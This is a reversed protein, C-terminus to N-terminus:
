TSSIILWVTSFSIREVSSIAKGKRAVSNTGSTDGSVFLQYPEKPVKWARFTSSALKVDEVIDGQGTKRASGQEGSAIYVAESRLIRKIPDFM